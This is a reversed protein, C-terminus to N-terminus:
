LIGEHSRVEDANSIIKGFNDAFIFFDQFGVAGSKDLDTAPNFDPQGFNDAFIFFVQFSVTNGQRSFWGFVEVGDTDVPNVETIIVIVSSTEDALDLVTGLGAQVFVNTENTIEEVLVALAAAATPTEDPAGGGDIIEFDVIISGSRIDKVVVRNPDINMVAATTAIFNNSFLEVATENEVDLTGEFTVTAQVTIVIEVDPTGGILVIRALDAASGVDVGLDTENDLDFPRVTYIYTTADAVAEDLYEATGPGLTAILEEGGAEPQRYVNYGQVGGRPVFTNGFSSLSIADDASLSWTLSIRNAEDDSADLALLNTVPEPPINDVAAVAGSSVLQGYLPAVCLAALGVVLALQNRKKM